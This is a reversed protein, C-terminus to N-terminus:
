PTGQAQGRPKLTSQAIYAPQSVVLAQSQGPEIEAAPGTAATAPAALIITWVDTAVDDELKVGGPSYGLGIESAEALRLNYAHPPSDLWSQLVANPDDPGAAINEALVRYGYGADEVRAPLDRGDPGVHGVFADRVMADSHSQSVEDLTSNRTLPPLGEGSRFDNIAALLETALDTEAAQAPVALCCLLLAAFLRKM